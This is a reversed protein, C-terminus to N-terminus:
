RSSECAAKDIKAEYIFKNEKDVVRTIMTAGFENVLMGRVRQKCVTNVSHARLPRFDVSSGIEEVTQDIVRWVTVMSRGAAFIDHIVINPAMQPMSSINAKAGAAVQSIVSDIGVKRIESRIAELQAETQAIAASASLALVLASTLLPTSNFRPMTSSENIDQFADRLYQHM